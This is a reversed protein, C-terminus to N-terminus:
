NTNIYNNNYKICQPQFIHKIYTLLILNNIIIIEKQVKQLIWKISLMIHKM